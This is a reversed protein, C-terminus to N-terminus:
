MQQNFAIVKLIEFNIGDPPTWEHPFLETTFSTGSFTAM